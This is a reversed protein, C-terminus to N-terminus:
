INRSTWIMGGRCPLGGGDPVHAATKQCSRFWPEGCVRHVADAHFGPGRLIYPRAAPGYLGHGLDIEDRGARWTRSARLPINVMAATLARPMRRALPGKVSAPQYDRSVPLRPLVMPPISVPTQASRIPKKRRGLRASYPKRAQLMM